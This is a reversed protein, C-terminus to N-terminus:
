RDAVGAFLQERRPEGVDARGRQYRAADAVQALKQMLLVIDDDLREIAHAAGGHEAHASIIAVGTDYELDDGGELLAEAHRLAIEGGDAFAVLAYEDDIALRHRIRQRPDRRGALQAAVEGSAATAHRLRQAVAITGDARAHRRLEL